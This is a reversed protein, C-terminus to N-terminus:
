KHDKLPLSAHKLLKLRPSQKKYDKTVVSIIASLNLSQIETDSDKEGVCGDPIVEGIEHAVFGEHLINDEVSIQTEM